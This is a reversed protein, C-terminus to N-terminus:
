ILCIPWFFMQIIRGNKIKILCNNRYIYMQFHTSIYIKSILKGIKVHVNPFQPHYRPSWNRVTKIWHGLTKSSNEWGGTLWMKWGFWGNTAKVSFELYSMKPVSDSYFVLITQIEPFTEACLIHNCKWIIKFVDLNDPFHKWQNFKKSNSVIKTSSYRTM